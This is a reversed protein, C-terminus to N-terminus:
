RIIDLQVLGDEDKCNSEDSERQDKTRRREEM